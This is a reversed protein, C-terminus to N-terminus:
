MAARAAARLDMIATWFVDARDLNVAEAEGPARVIKEWAAVWRDLGAPTREGAMGTAKAHIQDGLRDFL